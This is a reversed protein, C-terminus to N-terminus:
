PAKVEAKKVEDEAEKVAKEAEVKENTGDKLSELKKKAKAVQKSFLQAAKPWQFLMQFTSVNPKRSGKPGGM